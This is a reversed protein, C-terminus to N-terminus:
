PARGNLALSQLTEALRGATLHESEPVVDDPRFRKLLRQTNSYYRHAKGHDGLRRALHGMTFHAMIFNGDLYLARQLAARAEAADGQELLVVARLYHGAADLRDADLWQDCWALAEALRGQNACEHARQRAHRAPVQVRAGTGPETEADKEDAAEAADARRVTAEIPAVGASQPEAMLVIPEASTKHSASKKQFLIAGPYSATRFRALQTTGAAEGPAVVLWGDDNLCHWLRDMVSAIHSPTFYMLVNRCLVLDMARLDSRSFGDTGDVLNLVGFHVLRRIEPVVTYGGEADRTFYRQRLWEPADRFSWDSYRGAAAKELFRANVDTAQISIDWEALDPLLRHLMVAMTYAEEGTCCAACWLRLYRLGRARRARILAPLVDASLAELAPRDRFFYTEGVTLHSALVRLATPTPPQSLLWEICAVSNDFGLERAAHRFSRRLDEHRKPPFHLGLTAAVFV